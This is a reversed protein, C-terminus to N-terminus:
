REKGFKQALRINGLAHESILESEVIIVSRLYMKVVNNIPATVHGLFLDAGTDSLYSCEGRFMM